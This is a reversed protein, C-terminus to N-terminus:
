PFSKEWQYSHGHKCLIIFVTKIDSRENAEEEYDIESCWYEREVNTDRHQVTQPLSNFASSATPLRNSTMRIFSLVDSGLVMGLLVQGLTGSSLLPSYVASINKAM